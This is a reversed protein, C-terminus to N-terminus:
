DFSKDYKEAWLEAMELDFESYFEEEEFVQFSFIRIDEAAWRLVAEKPDGVVPKLNNGAMFRERHTKGGAVM